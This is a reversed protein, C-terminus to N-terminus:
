DTKNSHGRIKPIIKENRDMELRSLFDAATNMKGPIHAISFTLQLVFDSANWLPPPIMKTRFFRSVSIGDSMIIVPKTSGWFLHGFEKFALHIALFNKAYISTKSQSPTYKKSGYAIPAYSKLTSNHKENPDDEILM